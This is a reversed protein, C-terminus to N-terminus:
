FIVGKVVLVEVYFLIVNFCAVLEKDRMKGADPLMWQKLLIGRWPVKGFGFELTATGVM